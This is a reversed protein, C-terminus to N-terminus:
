SLSMELATREKLAKRSYSVMELNADLHVEYLGLIDTKGLRRTYECEEVTEVLVRWDGEAESEVAIVRGTKGLVEEFFVVVAQAVEAVGTSKKGAM